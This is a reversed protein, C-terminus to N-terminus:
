PAPSKLPNKLVQKWEADTLPREKQLALFIERCVWADTAAYLCQSRTLMPSEWNSLQQNKSIHVHLIRAALKKVGKEVFGYFPVVRQIDVFGAPRFFFAAQLQRMDEHIAAGVKLIDKSALLDAISRPLGIKNLRFLYAREDTTLQLLAVTNNNRRGAIFMPKTETDFGLMSQTSLYRVAERLSRRGAVVTIKGGFSGVPLAPEAGPEDAPADITTMIPTEADLLADTLPLLPPVLSQAPTM